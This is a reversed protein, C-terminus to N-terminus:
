MEFPLAGDEYTELHVFWSGLKILKAFARGSTYYPYEKRGSFFVM